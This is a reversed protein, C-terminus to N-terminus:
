AASQFFWQRFNQAGNERCCDEPCTMWQQRIRALARTAALAVEYANMNPLVAAMSQGGYRQAVQSDGTGLGDPGFDVVSWAEVLALADALSDDWRPLGPPQGQDQPEPPESV